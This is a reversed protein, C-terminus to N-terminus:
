KGKSASAATEYDKVKKRLAEVEDQVAGKELLAQQVALEQDKLRQEANSAVTKLGAITAEHRTITERLGRQADLLTRLTAQDDDNSVKPDLLGPFTRNIDTLEGDSIILKTGKRAMRRSGGYEWSLVTGKGPGGAPVLTHALIDKLSVRDADVGDPVPFRFYLDKVAPSKCNEAVIVQPM